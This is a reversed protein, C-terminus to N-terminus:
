DGIVNMIKVPTRYNWPSTKIGTKYTSAHVIRGDGIYMAVHDISGGGAYFILDGPRMRDANVAQGQGSQARSSRALSVGAGNQLVYRTFGSCDVGTHPDSGGYRYSGGVFQLAYNVVNQRVEDSSAKAEAKEEAAAQVEETIDVGDPGIISIGSDVPVYGSEGGIDLRVWGDGVNEEIQFTAGQLAETLVEEGEVATKVDVSEALVTAKYNELLGTHTGQAAFATFPQAAMLAGCLATWGITRIMKLNM